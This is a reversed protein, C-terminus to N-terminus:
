YDKKKFFTKLSDHQIEIGTEVVRHQDALTEGWSIGVYFRIVPEGEIVSPYEIVGDVTKVMLIFEHDSGGVADVTRYAVHHAITYGNKRYPAESDIEVDTM